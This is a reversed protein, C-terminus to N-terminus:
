FNCEKSSSDEGPTALIKQNQSSYNDSVVFEKAEDNMFSFFFYIFPKEIMGEECIEPM